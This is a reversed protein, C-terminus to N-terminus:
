YSHWIFEQLRDALRDADPKRMLAQRPCVTSLFSSVETRWNQYLSLSWRNMKTCPVSGHNIAHANFIFISSRNLFLRSKDARQVYLGCQQNSDPVGEFVSLVIGPCPGTLSSNQYDQHGIVHSNKVNPQKIVAMADSYNTCYRTGPQVQPLNKSSCFNNVLNWVPELRNIIDAQLEPDEMCPRRWVPHERRVEYYKREDAPVTKLADDVGEETLQLLPRINYGHKLYWYCQVGKRCVTSAHFGAYVHLLNQGFSSRSTNRYEWLKEENKQLTTLCAVRELETLYYM